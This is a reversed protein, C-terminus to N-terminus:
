PNETPVGEYLSAADAIYMGVFETFSESVIEPTNKGVIIVRPAGNPKMRIAYAWSWHLYDAFVFFESDNAFHQVFPTRREVEEDARTVESLPWFSFGKKDEPNNPSMGDVTLFYARMDEPLEVCNRREFDLISDPHCGGTLSLGQFRWYNM